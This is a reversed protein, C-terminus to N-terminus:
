QRRVLEALYIDRTRRARELHGRALKVEKRAQQLDRRCEKVTLVAARRQADCALGRFPHAVGSREVSVSPSGTVGGVFLLGLLRLRMHQTNRLVVLTM